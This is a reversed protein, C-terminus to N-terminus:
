YCIVLIEHDFLMEYSDRAARAIHFDSPVTACKGTPSRRRRRRRSPVIPSSEFDRGAVSRLLMQDRSQYETRTHERPQQHSARNPNVRRYRQRYLISEIAGRGRAEGTTPLGIRVIDIFRAPAKSAGTCVRKANAAIHMCAYRTGGSSPSGSAQGVDNFRTAPARQHPM